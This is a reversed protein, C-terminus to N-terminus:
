ALLLRPSEPFPMILVTTALCILFGISLPTSIDKGFFWYYLIFFVTICAQEVFRLVQVLTQRRRPFWENMYPLGVNLRAPTTLGLGIMAALMLKYSTTFLVIGYLCSDMIRAIMFAPKRGFKDALKPVILMTLCQAFIFCTGILTAKWFPDCM